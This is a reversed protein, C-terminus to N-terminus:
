DLPKQYYNGIIRETKSVNIFVKPDAKRIADILGHVQYTNVTMFLLCRPTHSFAGEGWLKTIGHRCYRFAADCVEEPKDTIIFLSNLKYRTHLASVVQTSCFQYIISYLAKEWGFLVGAVILMVANFGMVYSWTPTNFKTSAYIALFDTGGSSANARLAISIGFGGVIGGFVAILLMDNTIPFSPLLETFLSTLSYQLVSFVTFRWGVYRFVLLTPPINLLLYFISFPIEIHAFQSLSQSFMRSLGAFGGPFLNGSEVFAKMATAYVLASIIVAILVRIDKKVQISM